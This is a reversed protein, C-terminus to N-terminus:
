YRVYGACVACLLRCNGGNEHQCVYHGQSYATQTQILDLRSDAVHTM